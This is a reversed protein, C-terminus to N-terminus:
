QRRRQFPRSTASDEVESYVISAGRGALAANVTLVDKQQEKWHWSEPPSNV